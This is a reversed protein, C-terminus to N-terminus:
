AALDIALGLYDDARTTLRMLGYSRLVARKLQTPEAVGRSARLRTVLDAIEDLPVEDLTRSGLTRPRVAPMDPLRLLDDGQWPIESEPVLVIRRERALWDLASALPVRVAGTLKRGGSARNYLTLARTATLPGEAAVIEHLAAMLDPRRTSRPDGLAREEWERYPELAVGDGQQASPVPGLAVGDEQQASPVPELWAELPWGRVAESLQHVDRATAPLSHVEIACLDALLAREDSLVRGPAEPWGSLVLASVHLGAGRAAEVALRGHGLANRGARTTLVVPAGLDRALDRVSYRATLPALLGGALASVLLDGGAAALARELLRPPDLEIGAHRAAVLPAAATELRDVALGHEPRGTAEALVALAAGSEPGLAVPVFASPEGGAARSALCAAASVLLEDADLTAGLISLGRVTSLILARAARM